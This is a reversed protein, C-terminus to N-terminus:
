WDQYREVSGSGAVQGLPREPELHPAKRWTRQVLISSGALDAELPPRPEIGQPDPQTGANPEDM